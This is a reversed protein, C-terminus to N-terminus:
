FPTEVQIGGPSFFAPGTVDQFNHTFKVTVKTGKELVFIIM